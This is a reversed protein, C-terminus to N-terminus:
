APWDRPFPVRMTEPDVPTYDASAYFWRGRRVIAGSNVMSDVLDGTLAWRDAKLM